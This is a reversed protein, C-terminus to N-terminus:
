NSLAQCSESRLYNELRSVPTEQTSHSNLVVTARPLNQVAWEAFWCETLAREARPRDDESNPVHVDSVYFYGPVHVGLGASSHPGVGFMMLRVPRSHDGLTHTDSVPVVHLDIDLESFRDRPMTDRNLATEIFHAYEAPAFVTAGAAAFARAGGIHDDHAHTLAVARIPRGPFESDLFDVFRESLGSLGLGPVLDAPPIQHIEVWGAPADGVVLGETTDVVLHQFGTRVGRVLYVGDAVDVRQMNVRAPWEEGPVEVPYEGPTRRWQEQEEAGTLNRWSGRARFFVEGDVQLELQPHNDNHWNWEWSVPIRGRLPLDASTRLVQLRGDRITASVEGIPDLQHEEVFRRPDIRRVRLAEARSDAGHFEIDPPADRNVIRVLEPPLLAVTFAGHLDPNSKGSGSFVARESDDDTIVCWRTPVFEDVGPDHGQYRAGLNFEGDLCFETTGAAFVMPAAFCCLNILLRQAIMLRNEPRNHLSGRVGISCPLEPYM